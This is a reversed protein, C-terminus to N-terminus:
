QLGQRRAALSDALALVCDVYPQSHNYSMIAQRQRRPSGDDPWGNKKLYYVISAAADEVDDLNVIGDRNGDQGYYLYSTPIFQSLGFAGAWSGMMGLPDASHGNNVMRILDRLQTRAWEARKAMKTKRESWEPDDRSLVEDRVAPDDALSLTWFVNFVSETGKHRGLNTEVKLIATIVEAPVGGERAADNLKGGDLRLFDLCGAVSEPTLQQAYLDPTEVHTFNKTIITPRFKARSDQLLRRLTALEEDRWGAAALRSLLGAKHADDWVVDPPPQFSPSIGAELPQTHPKVGAAAATLPITMPPVTEEIPLAEVMETAVPKVLSSDPEPPTVIDPIGVAPITDPAVASAGTIRSAVVQPMPAFRTQIGSWVLLSGGIALIIGAILWGRLM